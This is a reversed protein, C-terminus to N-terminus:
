EGAAQVQRARHVAARVDDFTEVEVSWKSPKRGRGAVERGDEGVILIEGLTFVPQACGLFLAAQINNPLPECRGEPDNEIRIYIDMPVAMNGGSEPPPVKTIVLFKMARGGARKGLEPWIVSWLEMDADNVGSTEDDLMLSKHREIAARMKPGLMIERAVEPPVRFCVQGQECPICVTFKGDYTWDSM